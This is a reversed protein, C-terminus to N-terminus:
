LAKRFTLSIRCAGTLPHEGAALAAIGHYALRAPGGWVVVDGSEVRIRRPRDARKWGGFLFVAPLGLSVTVIPAAYDQENKDQHLTLRTGPEYKNILCADTIFGPFGAAAAAREALNSFLAPMAPWPRGSEPDLLDYRYGKRDSVWGASGCNTMAVSMRFGGPTIMNRFPAERAIAHVQEILAPEERTAFARLIVAGETIPETATTRLNAFLDATTRSTASTHRTM